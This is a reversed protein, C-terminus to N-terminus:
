IYLMLINTCKVGGDHCFTVRSNGNFESVLLLNVTGFDRDNKHNKIKHVNKHTHEKRWTGATGNHLIFKVSRVSFSLRHNNVRTCNMIYVYNLQDTTFFKSSCHWAIRYHVLVVHALLSPFRLLYTLSKYLAGFEWFLSDHRTHGVCFNVFFLFYFHCGILTLAFTGSLRERCNRSQMKCYVECVEPIQNQDTAISGTNIRVFLYVCTKVLYLFTQTCRLWKRIIYVCLVLAGFFSSSGDKLRTRWRRGVLPTIM